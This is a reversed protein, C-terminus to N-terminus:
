VPNPIDIFQTSCNFKAQIAEALAQVGLTESAHHGCAFYHVNLEAALHTTRESVEGSLFADAGHEYALTIYDQAGGSCWFINNINAKRAPLHLPQRHNTAKVIRQKLEAVSISEPLQCGHVLGNEFRHESSLGLAKGWLVNNGIHPHIDLPLHYALLSIDHKMLSRIRRGKMGVLPAPEGKWFYGHHVLILDAKQQIAIDILAQNATVGCIISNIASKGEVQLGNPAYDSISAAELLEDCYSVLNTLSVM